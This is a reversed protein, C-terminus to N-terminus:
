LRKSSSDSMSVAKRVPAFENAVAEVMATFSYDADSTHKAIRQIAAEDRWNLGRGSAYIALKHALNKVFDDSREEVFYAALDAPETIETGDFLEETSIKKREDLERLGGIADYHELALGFPDMINHCSACDPNERHLALSARLDSPDPKGDTDPLSPINDPPPPPALGVINELIWQGRLVPSTYNPYSTVTLIAAQSWIGRRPTDKLSVKRFETGKVEPIDYHKALLENVFTYDATLFDLLPRNKQLVHVFMHETEKRMAALLKPSATKYIERDPQHNDLDRLRWWQGAFNKALATAKTDKLMREIETDLNELLENNFALEFLQDDPMSSWLFYSLWSALGFEDAQAPDELRFLFSPSTLVADIVAYIGNHVNRESTLYQSNTLFVAWLDEAEEASVARRFARSAFRHIGNHLEKTSLAEPYSGFHRDLFPSRLDKTTQYPGEIEVDHLILNRDEKGTKTKKYYDKWLRVELRHEGPADIQITRNITNPTEGHAASVEVRDILKRGLRLEVFANELGAQQASVTFKIKYSGRGPFFQTHKASHKGGSQKIIRVNKGSTGGYFTPGSIKWLDPDVSRPVALQAAEAATSFYREILLPSISLTAAINDFGYGADDAPLSKTWDGKILLLDNITNSFEIRNLRRFKASESDYRGAQQILEGSIKDILEQRRQPPLNRGDPHPMYHTRLAQLVQTWKEPHAELDSRQDISTINLDADPLDNSHCESCYKDLSKATQEWTIWEDHPVALLPVASLLFICVKPVRSM